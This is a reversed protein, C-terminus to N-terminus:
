SERVHLHVTWVNGKGLPFDFKLDGNSDTTEGLRTAFFRSLEFLKDAPLSILDHGVRGTRDHQLM